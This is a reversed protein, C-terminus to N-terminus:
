ADWSFTGGGVRELLNSGSFTGTTGGPCFGSGKSSISTISSTVQLKGSINAYSLSKRSQPSVTTSCGLVPVSITITNKIHVEGNATLLYTAPSVTAPNTGFGSIAFTCEAYEVTIHQEASALSTISGITLAKKCTVINSGGSSTTFVQNTTQAGAITGTASATFVSASAGDAIASVALATICVTALM